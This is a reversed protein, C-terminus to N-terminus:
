RPAARSYTARRATRTGARCGRTCEIFIGWVSEPRDCEKLLSPQIADHTWTPSRQAREGKRALGWPVSMKCQHGIAFHVVPLTFVVIVACAHLLMACSPRQDPVEECLSVDLYRVMTGLRGRPAGGVVQRRSTGLRRFGSSAQHTRPATGGSPATAKRAAPPAHALLRAVLRRRHGLHPSLVVRNRPDVRAGM